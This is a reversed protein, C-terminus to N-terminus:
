GGVPSDPREVEVLCQFRISAGFPPVADETFVLRDCTADSTDYIWGSGGRAQEIECLARGDEDVGIPFRAPLDTCQVGVPLTEFVECPVTGDAAPTLSRNLCAQTIRRGIRRTLEALAAEFSEECISRVLGGDVRSALEVLRRAPTALSRATTGEHRTCAYALGVDTTDDEVYQMRPDALITAFDADVLDVPIGAIAAFLFTSETRGASMQELLAGVDELLALNRVCHKNIERPGPLSGYFTAPDGLSCDEEDTLVLVALLAEPRPFAANGRELARAASLLPQEFGCGGIGVAQATCGVRDAFAAADDGMRWELVSEGAGCTSSSFLAGDDGYDVCAGLSTSPPVGNTGMDTTITAVRLSAVANWDPEGNGDEDPPATLGEVLETIQAGLLAQEEEMSRSSDVVILLDVDAIGGSHVRQDIARSVRPELVGLERDVCGTVLLLACGAGALVNRM